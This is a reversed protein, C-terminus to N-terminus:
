TEIYLHPLALVDGWLDDQHTVIAHRLEGDDEWVVHRHEASGCGWEDDHHEVWGWMPGTIEDNRPIQKFVAQTMQRNDVKMVKVELTLTDISATHATTV